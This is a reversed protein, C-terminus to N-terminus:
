SGAIKKLYTIEDLTLRRYQGKKLNGLKIDGVGVRKLYVVERGVGEFM